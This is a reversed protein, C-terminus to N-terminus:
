STKRAFWMKGIGVAAPAGFIFGIILNAWSAVDGRIPDTTGWGLVVDWVVVKWIYIAFPLAFVVVLITLLYNSAIIALSATREHAETEATKLLAIAADRDAGTKAQVIQVKANFFSNTVSSVLSSIGPIANLLALFAALM